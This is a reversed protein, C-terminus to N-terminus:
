PLFFGRGVTSKEHGLCFLLYLMLWTLIGEVAERIAPTRVRVCM